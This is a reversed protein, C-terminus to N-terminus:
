IRRICTPEARRDIWYGVRVSETLLKLTLPKARSEQGHQYRILNICLSTEGDAPFYLAHQYGSSDVNFRTFFEDMLMEAYVENIGTWLLHMDRKRFVSQGMVKGAYYTLMKLIEQEATTNRTNM